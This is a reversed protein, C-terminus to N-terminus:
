NTCRGTGFIASMKSQSISACPAIKVWVNKVFCLMKSYMSNNAFLLWVNLLSNCGCNEREVGPVSPLM